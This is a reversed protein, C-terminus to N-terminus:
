AKALWKDIVAQDAEGAFEDHGKLWEVAAKKNLAEGIEVLRVNTHENHHLVKERGAKDNAFRLKTVGNLVSLGVVKFLKDM